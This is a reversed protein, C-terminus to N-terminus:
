NGNEKGKIEKGKIEKIWQELKTNFLKLTNDPLKQIQENNVIKPVMYIAIAEKTSPLLVSIFSILILIMSFKSLNQTYTKQLNSKEDDDYTEAITVAKVIFYIAGTVLLLGITFIIFANLVDLRTILYIDWSTIM